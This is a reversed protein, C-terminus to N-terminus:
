AMLVRKLGLLGSSRNCSTMIMNGREIGKYKHNGIKARLSRGGASGALSADANFIVEM